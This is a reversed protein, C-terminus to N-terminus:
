VLLIDTAAFATGDAFDALLVSATKGTGDRDFWLTADTTRFIFRDLADQPLNTTGSVFASASIAGTLAGLGFAAANVALVDLGTAFDAITDGRDAYAQFLFTDAGTGGIIADAGSGGILTDNGGGGILDDLAGGGILVNAGDDGTLTDRYASGTINEFGAYIDGAVGAGRNAAPDALNVAVRATLASLDLTDVGEGADIVEDSLGVVFRDNGSGGLIDGIVTGGTGVYLDDGGGLDVTGLMTGANTVRDAVNGGQFSHGLSEIFGFNTFDLTGNGSINHIGYLEGSMFGHNTVTTTGGDRVIVQLAAGQATITGRNVFTSGVGDLIVGHAEAIPSNRGAIIVGTQAIEVNQAAECNQLDIGDDYALITGSLIISHQGSTAQVADSQTAILVVGVGINLDDNGSLVYLPSTSTQTTAQIPM